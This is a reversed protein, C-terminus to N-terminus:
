RYKRALEPTLDPERWVDALADDITSQPTWGFRTAIESIDAALHPRDVKRLRSQEQELSFDIKAVAKLKAVIEAVSYSHSTGLNVTLTSGAAVDDKLAM